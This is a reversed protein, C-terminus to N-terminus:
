RNVNTNASSNTSTKATNEIEGKFRKQMESDNAIVLAAAIDTSLVKANSTDSGTLHKQAELLSSRAKIYDGILLYARGLLYFDEADQAPPIEKLYAAPDSDVTRRLKEFSTISINDSKMESFQLPQSVPVNLFLFHYIGFGILGGFLLIGLVTLTKGVLGSGNADDASGYNSEDLSLFKGTNSFVKDHEVRVTTVSEKTIPKTTDIEILADTDPLTVVSIARATTVTDEDDGLLSATTIEQEASESIVKIVVATLNDEAGREYCLTKLYSCVSDPESGATLIGKIEDDTVHRTIGDSCILFTTEPEILITKLDVEVSREAGLARNIVNRSPHNEAQEETMRGSRVEEAVMSHDETERHLVGKPDVRYLRSDGVHGITAINGSIHLAVITTAMSWLKPLDQAMQYIAGNASEIATQLVNEADIGDPKNTFAEGLIEMAMQSAVEGGQSGGVGDAVAYIRCRAMELFSDENQPRKDSLGKDSVSASVIQLNNEMPM